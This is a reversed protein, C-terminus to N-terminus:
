LDRTREDLEQAILALANILTFSDGMLKTLKNLDSDILDIRAQMVALNALTAAYEQARSDDM